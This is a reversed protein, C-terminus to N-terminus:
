VNQKIIHHTTSTFAPMEDATAAPADTPGITECLLDSSSSAVPTFLVAAWAKLPAPIIGLRLLEELDLSNM